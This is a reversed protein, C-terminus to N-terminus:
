IAVQFFIDTDPDLMDWNLLSEPYKVEIVACCAKVVAEKLPVFKNASLELPVKFKVEPEPPSAPRKIVAVDPVSVSSKLKPVPVTGLAAKTFSLMVTPVVSISKPLLLVVNAPNVLTVEM